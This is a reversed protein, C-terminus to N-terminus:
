KEKNKMLKVISNVTNTSVGVIKKIDNQPVKAKALEIILLKQILTILTESSNSVTIIKPM